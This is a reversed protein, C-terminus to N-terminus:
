KLLQTALKFSYLNCFTLPLFFPVALGHLGENSVQLRLPLPSPRVWPSTVFTLLLCQVCRVVYFQKYLCPVKAKGSLATAEWVHAPASTVPDMHCDGGPDTSHLLLPLEKMRGCNWTGSLAYSEPWPGILGSFAMWSTAWWCLWSAAWQCLFLVLYAPFRLVGMRVLCHWSLSPPDIM